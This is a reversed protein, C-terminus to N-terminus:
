AALEEDENEPEVEEDFGEDCLAEVESMAKREMEEESLEISNNKYEPYANLFWKKTLPYKAGKAEAVKMVAELEKVKSEGNPKILIYEKMKKFTLNRYKRQEENRNINKIVVNFDPHEALKECLERYEPTNGANAKSIATKTGVIAKNIFDYNFYNKM